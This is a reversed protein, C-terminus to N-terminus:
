SASVTEAGGLAGLLGLAASAGVIAATEVRLVRDGLRVPMFGWQRLRHREQPSWGGEPGIALVVPSEGALLGGGEPRLTASGAEPDLLVLPSGGQALDPIDEFVHVGSLKPLRSGHCQQLAGVAVRRLRDLNGEGYSRSSRESGMFCIQAVGLETGKEVLWSARQFRPAAVLLRVERSPENPSAPPGVSVDAERPGVQVVEGWRANGGGDVLRLMAGRGLRRSRFLHRYADGRIRLAEGTIEEPSVLVTIMAPMPLGGM